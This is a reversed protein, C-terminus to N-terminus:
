AEKLLSARHASGRRTQRMAERTRTAAVATIERARRSIHSEPRAKPDGCAATFFTGFSAIRPERLIKRDRIAALRAAVSWTLSIGRVEEDEEQLSRPLPPPLLPPARISATAASAVPANAPVNKEEIFVRSLYRGDSITCRLHTRIQRDPPPLTKRNLIRFPVCRCHSFLLAIDDSHNRVESPM